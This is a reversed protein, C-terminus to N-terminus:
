IILFTFYRGMKTQSHQGVKIWNLLKTIRHTWIICDNKNNIYLETHTALELAEYRERLSNCNIM